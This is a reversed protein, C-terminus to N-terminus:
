SDPQYLQADRSMYAQHALDAGYTERYQPYIDSSSLPRTPQPQHRMTLGGAPGPQDAPGLRDGWGGPQQRQYQYQYQYPDPHQWQRFPLTSTLQMQPPPPQRSTPPLCLNPTSQYVPAARGTHPPAGTSRVQGQRPPLPPGRPPQYEPYVYGQPLPGPWWGAGGGGGGVERSQPLHQASAYRLRRPDPREQPDPRETAYLAHTSGMATAPRADRLQLSRRVDTGGSSAPSWHPAPRSQLQRLIESTCEFRPKIGRVSPRRAFSGDEDGAVAYRQRLRETRASEREAFAALEDSEVVNAPSDTSGYGSDASGAKAPSSPVVPAPEALADDIDDLSYSDRSGRSDPSQQSDRSDASSAASHRTGASRQPLSGGGAAETMQQGELRDSLPRVHRAAAPHGATHQAPPPCQQASRGTSQRPTEWTAPRQTAQQASQAPAQHSSPTDSQSFLQQAAQHIRSDAARIGQPSVIRARRPEPPPWRGASLPRQRPQQSSAAAGLPRGPPSEPRQVSPRPATEERVPEPARPAPTPAAAPAPRPAPVAGPTKTRTEIVTETETETQSAASAPIPAPAPAPMPVTTPAPAAASVPTLWLTESMKWERVDGPVEIDPPSSFSYSSPRGPPPPPPSSGDRRCTESVGTGASLPDGGSGPAASSGTAADATPGTPPDGATAALGCWASSLRVENARALSRRLSNHEIARAVDTGSRGLRASLALETLAHQRLAELSASDGARQSGDRLPEGQEAPRATDLQASRAAGGGAIVTDMSSLSSEGDSDAPPPPPPPPLPPPLLRPAPAPAPPREFRVSRGGRRPQSDGSDDSDGGGGGRGGAWLRGGKLIGSLLREARSDAIEMVKDHQQVNAITLVSGGGSGPESPPESSVAARAGDSVLDPLNRWAAPPARDTPAPPSAPEPSPTCTGSDDSDVAAATQDHGAEEAPEKTEETSCVVGSCQAPATDSVEDTVSGAAGLVDGETREVAIDDLHVLVNEGSSQAGHTEDADDTSRGDHRRRGETQDRTVETSDASSHRAPAEPEPAGGDSTELIIDDLQALPAAGIPAEPGDGSCESGAFM